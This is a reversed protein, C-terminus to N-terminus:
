GDPVIPVRRATVLPACRCRCPTRRAPSRSRTSAPLGALGRRGSGPAQLYGLGVSAGVTAGWAASTVQGVPSVTGRLLEGGWLLPEPDAVVLSVFRRRPGGEASTGAVRRWATRGLFDKSGKLATAFVLGAEVPTHDPTLERGFARYGKELRFADIAYYGADTCPGAM